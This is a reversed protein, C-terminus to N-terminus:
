RRRRLRRLRDGEIAAVLEAEVKTLDRVAQREVRRLGTRWGAYGARAGNHLFHRAKIPANVTGYNGFGGRAGGGGKFGLGGFADGQQRSTVFIPHPGGGGSYASNPPSPQGSVGPGYFFGKLVRGINHASGFEQARWYPGASPNFPNVAKDLEDIDGIGVAGTGLPGLVKIPRARIKDRLQPKMRSDPRSRTTKLVGRVAERAERASGIALLDLNENFRAYAILATERMAVAEARRRGGGPGFSRTVTTLEDIIRNFSAHVAAIDATIYGEQYRPM